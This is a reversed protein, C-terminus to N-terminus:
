ITVLVACLILLHPWSFHRLLQFTSRRKHSRASDRLSRSSFLHDVTRHKEQEHAQDDQVLSTVLQPQAPPASLPLSPDHVDDVQETESPLSDPEDTNQDYAPLAQPFYNKEELDIGFLTTLKERYLGHPFATGKEWRNITHPNAGITEALRNQTWGRSKREFRLQENWKMMHKEEFQIPILSGVAFSCSAVM